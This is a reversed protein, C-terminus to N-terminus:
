EFEIKHENLTHWIRGLNYFTGPIKRTRLINKITKKEKIRCDIYHPINVDTKKALAVIDQIEEYLIIIKSNGYKILDEYKSLIDTKDLQRRQYTFAFHAVFVDANICNVIGLQAPKIVSFYEEDNNGKPCVGGFKKFTSGFWVIMNISFRLMAIPKKGMHLENYSDDKVKKQFWDLLQYAFTASCWSSEWTMASSLYRKLRIKGGNQLLYTGSCNNIVLPSVIFYDPNDIRFDVMKTIADPEFWILDDDLKVYITDDDTCYKYFGFLSELGNFKNDDIYILKIKTYKQALLEFFRLDVPNLTNVWIDYRDVIDNALVYPVLLNMYRHRGAATNCVVKYGRRM